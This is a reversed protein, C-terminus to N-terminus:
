IEQTGTPPRQALIILVPFSSAVAHMSCMADHAKIIHRRFMGPLLWELHIRLLLLLLYMHLCHVSTIIALFIRFVDFAINIM